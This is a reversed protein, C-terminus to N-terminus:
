IVTFISHSNKKATSECTVALHRHFYYYYYSFLVSLLLSLNAFQLNFLLFANVHALVLNCYHSISLSTSFHSGEIHRTALGQNVKLTCNELKVHVDLDDVATAM